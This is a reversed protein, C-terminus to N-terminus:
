GLQGTEHPEPVRLGVSTPLEASGPQAFPPTPELPIDDARESRVFAIGVLIALGGILQPISLSEGLLIWAYIAAAVVELMAVFSALRSGLMESATIGTWYAFGCAIVGVVLVPVWWPAVFGAFPLNELPATFPLIGTAGVAALLVGGLVLGAASLAVPSVGESPKAAVVFYVAAGVSAGAAFVIGLPDLAGGGPGVVLTLGVLAIVSGVLVVVKPMRRTRAWVFAVLLLPSMYEILIASGVPIRQVSSFYLVQTAAVGIVAMLLVRSRARWLAIWRGRLSVLAFPALVIGGTLVRFTVAAIPSWGAELLPKIVAGSLGFSLASVVAVGLGSLRSSRVM